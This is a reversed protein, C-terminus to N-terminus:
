WYCGMVTVVTMATTMVGDNAIDDGGDGGDGDNCDLWYIGYGMGKPGKLIVSQSIQYISLERKTVIAENTM